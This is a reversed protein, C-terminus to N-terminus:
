FFHPIQDSKVSKCIELFLSHTQDAQKANHGSFNESFKGPGSKFRRGTSELEGNRKEIMVTWQEVLQAVPSTHAAAMMICYTKYKLTEVSTVRRPYSKTFRSRGLEKM